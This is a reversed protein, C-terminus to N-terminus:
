LINFCQDLPLGLAAVHGQKISLMLMDHVIIFQSPVKGYIIRGWLTLHYIIRHEGWLFECMFLHANYLLLNRTLYFLDVHM